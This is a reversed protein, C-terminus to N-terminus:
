FRLSLNRLGVVKLKSEALREMNQPGKLPVERLGQSSTM